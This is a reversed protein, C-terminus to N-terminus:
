PQRRDDGSRSDGCRRDDTVSGKRYARYTVLPYSGALGGLYVLLVVPMPPLDDYRPSDVFANLLAVYFSFPATFAFAYAFFNLLRAPRVGWLRRADAGFGRWFAGFSAGGPPYLASRQVRYLLYLECVVVLLLLKGSIGYFYAVSIGFSEVVSLWIPNAELELDPSMFLTVTIDSTYAALSVAGFCLTARWHGRLSHQRLLLALGVSAMAVTLWALLALPLGLQAALGYLWFLGSYVLESFGRVVVEDHAVM